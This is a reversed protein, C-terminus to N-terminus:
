GMRLHPKRETGANGDRSHLGAQQAEIESVATDADRNGILEAQGSLRDQSQESFVGPLVEFGEAAQKSFEAARRDHQAIGEIHRAIHARLGGFRVGKGCGEALRKGEGYVEPVFAEARGFGVAMEMGGPAGKGAMPFDDVLDSGHQNQLTEEVGM